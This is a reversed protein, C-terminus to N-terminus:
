PEGPRRLRIAIARAGDGAAKAALAAGIVEAVDARRVLAFVPLLVHSVGCGACRARRPRVVVPGGGGRLLRTRAWGWPGLSGDCDPCALGGTVLRAEVEVQNAGVTLVAGGLAVRGERVCGGLSLRSPRRIGEMPLTGGWVFLVRGCVCM